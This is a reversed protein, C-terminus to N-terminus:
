GEAETENAHELYFVRGEGPAGPQAVAARIGDRAAVCMSTRRWDDSLLPRLACFIAAKPYLEMARAILGAYPFRALSALGVIVGKM